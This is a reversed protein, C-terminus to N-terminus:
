IKDLLEKRKMKYEEDSILGEDHLANIERFRKQMESMSEDLSHKGNQSPSSSVETTNMANLSTITDLKSQVKAEEKKIGEDDNIKPSPPMFKKQVTHGHDLLIQVYDPNSLRKESELYESIIKEYAPRRTAGYIFWAIPIGIFALSFIWPRISARENIKSITIWSAIELVAFALHVYKNNQRVMYYEKEREAYEFYRSDFMTRGCLACKRLPCGPIHTSANYLTTKFGCYPCTIVTRSYGM